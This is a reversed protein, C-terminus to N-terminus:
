GRVGAVPTGGRNVPYAAGSYDADPINRFLEGGISGRRPSAGSVAVCSPEFCPQLSARVAVHGRAAVQERCHATRAVPFRIEVEGGALERVVDFGADRFGNLMSRNDPLVEAVFEEIGVAAAADALRELLRTGIGRGHYADHVTFAAEAVRRDRLRAYNALAAIRGDLSGLLAGREEWDPELVPDVLSPGLAPFGHFRLFRSRESLTTFFELLAEADASRPARLRLTSGDRLIVDRTDMAGDNSGRPRCRMPSKGCVGVPNRCDRRTVGNACNWAQIASTSSGTEIASAVAEDSPAGDTRM